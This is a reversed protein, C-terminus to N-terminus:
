IKVTCMEMFKLTAIGSLWCKYKNLALWLFVLVTHSIQEFKVIFVDSHRKQRQLRESSKITLKSCIECMGWTNGNNVKFLYIGTPINKFFPKFGRSNSKPCFIWSHVLYFKRFVAKLFKLIQLPITQRFCVM